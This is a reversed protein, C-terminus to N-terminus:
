VKIDSTLMVTNNKLRTKVYKYNLYKRVKQDTFIVFETLSNATKPCTNTDVMSERSSITELDLQM